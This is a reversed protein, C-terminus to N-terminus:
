RNLYAILVAMNKIYQETSIANEPVETEVEKDSSSWGPSLNIKKTAIPRLPAPWYNAANLGAVVDAALDGSAGKEGAIFYKDMKGTSVTTLPSKALIEAVPTAKLTEYREKLTKLKVVRVSSYSQKAGLMVDVMEYGGSWLSEGKRRYFLPRHTDPEIFTPCLIDGEKMKKGSEAAQADTLKVSELFSFADPLRELFRKDGTLGYYNLMMGIGNATGSSALAAPEFPRATAPKLTQPHYQLGWGANPSEQQLLIMCYMGRYIPDLLRQEGLTQYCLVLFDIIGEMAGDNLTIFASYDPFGMFSHESKFPFRQPWGGIPYQSELVFNIAKDLAPKVGPNYKEMYIRLLFECCRITSMDDFTGNGYYHLFEQAPWNYQRIAKYWDILSAEGAFDFCYNWGGSPLQGSILANAVTLAAEYYYEDSTAHYADLFLHGMAPTGGKGQTWAMTNRAEIEGWQRSKDPLYEWLFGGKYSVEEMMFRTAAKMVRKVHADDPQQAYAALTSVLLFLLTAFLKKGSNLIM